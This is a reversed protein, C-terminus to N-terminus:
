HYPMILQRVSKTHLLKVFYLEEDQVNQTKQILMSGYWDLCAEAVFLRSVEIKESDKKIRLPIYEGEYSNM